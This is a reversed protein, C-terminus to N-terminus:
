YKSYLKCVRNMFRMYEDDSYEKLLNIVSQESVKQVHENKIQIPGDFYEVDHTYVVWGDRNIGIHEDTDEERIDTVHRTHVTRSTFVIMELGEDDNTRSKLEEYKNIANEKVNELIKVYDRM